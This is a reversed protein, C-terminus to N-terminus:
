GGTRDSERGGDHWVGRRRTSLVGASFSPMSVRYEWRSAGTETDIARFGAQGEGNESPFGRGGMYLKGPQYEATARMFGFASDSFALYMTGTAAAYSPAQWNTGGIGPYVMVGQPSAEADPAVVPRGERDFRRNWTQRVFPRGLLFEGSTRDLVYFLGNRNAQLILKRKEGSFLQDALILDEAADWDHSDGPTFQYHWKRKGTAADLAVVSCSFLNDGKRVEANLDPGPNGIGWYLVDEDPDYSGTLWTSAWGAELLRGELHRSRVRGAGTGCRLAM